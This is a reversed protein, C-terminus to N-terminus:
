SSPEPLLTVGSDDVVLLAGSDTVAVADAAGHATGVQQWTTEGAVSTWIRESSDIGALRNGDPSSAVVVLLPAAEWLSFTAGHDDSIMVGDPTLAVLRSAADTTLAFARIQAGTQTWATGLDTSMLLAANDTTAGFMTGDLTGTLAHFDRKGAFAISQWSGAADDSRIIGLNPDGWEAPTNRGPHGSAFLSTGVRAFGMADFAVNGEPAYLEGDAAVGYVGEHTGLLFGEGSPDVVVGHVHTATAAHEEGTTPPADPACAALLVALGAVSVTMLRHIHRM